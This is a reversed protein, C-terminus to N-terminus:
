ATEDSFQPDPPIFRYLGFRTLLAAGFATVLMTLPLIGGLVPVFRLLEVLLVLLVMGLAASAPAHLHWGLRRSVWRGIWLAYPVAGYSTAALMALFGLLTLPLLLITYAMIVLLSLGVVWGLLGVSFSVLFYRTAAQEVNALFGPLFRVVLFALGSLLVFELLITVLQGAQGGWVTRDPAPDVARNVSGRIRAGEALELDGGSLNLSGDVLAQPRLVARGLIVNIDGDVAGALDLSGDLLHVSGTVRADEDLRISGGLILLEGTITEGAELAHTGSFIVRGSYSDQLQCGSLLLGFTIFAILIRFRNM